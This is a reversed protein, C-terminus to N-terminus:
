ASVGELFSMDLQKREKVKYRSQFPKDLSDVMPHGAQRVAYALEEMNVVGNSDTVNKLVAELEKKAVDASVSKGADDPHADYVYVAAIREAPQGVPGGVGGATARAHHAGIASKAEEDDAYEAVSMRGTEYVIEYFPM